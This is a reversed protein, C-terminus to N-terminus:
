DRKSDTQKHTNIFDEYHKQMGEEYQFDIFQSEIPLGTYFPKKKEKCLAEIAKYAIYKVPQFFSYAPKYELIASFQEGHRNKLVKCAILKSKISKNEKPNETTGAKEGVDIIDQPLKNKEEEKKPKPTPFYVNELALMASATYEVAGSEKASALSLADKYSQRNVSSIALIPLDYAGSLQKLKKVNYDIAQKDTQIGDVHPHEIIQTYDVVVLSPFSGTYRKFSDIERQITEITVDFLGSCITIRNEVMTQYDNIATNAIRSLRDEGGRVFDEAFDLENLANNVLKGDREGLVAKKGNEFSENFPNNKSNSNVIKELTTINENKWDRMARNYSFRSLSRCLLQAKTMELSFFLCTGGNSAVNDVIQCAFATKGAAPEGILITLGTRLGGRLIRDVNHFGTSLPPKGKEHFLRALTDLTSETRKERVSQVCKFFNAENAQWQENADKGDTWERIVKYRIELAELGEIYEGNDEVGDCIERLAKQGAEDTDLALVLPPLTDVEEAVEKLSRLFGKVNASSGISLSLMGSNAFTMADIEGETIYVPKETQMLNGMGFFGGSGIYFVKSLKKEKRETDSYAPREIYAVTELKANKLPFVLAPHTSKKKFTPNQFQEVECVDMPLAAKMFDLGRGRLYEDVAGHERIQAPFALQSEVAKVKKMNEEEKQTNKNYATETPNTLVNVLPTTVPNLDIKASSPTYNHGGGELVDKFGMELGLIRAGIQLAPLFAKNDDGLGEMDCILNVASWVGRCGHSSKAHCKIVKAGKSSEYFNASPTKENPKGICAFKGVTPLQYHQMIAELNANITAKLEDRKRKLEDKNM